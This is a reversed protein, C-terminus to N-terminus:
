RILTVKGTIKHKLYLGVTKYYIVWVYTSPSSIQGKYTGDWGITIDSTYFIEDGWRDFIYMEFDELERECIPKFVDNKSNYDPSFANPVWINVDEDKIVVMQSSSDICQWRNTVILTINYNGPDPFSFSVPSGSGGLGNVFWNYTVSDSSSSYCLVPTNIKPLSPHTNFAADPLPHVVITSSATSSGCGDYGIVSIITNSTPTVTISNNTSGGNWLYTEGGSATLTVSEGLCIEADTPSVTVLIQPLTTVVVTDTALCGVGNDSITLIYTTTVSPSVTVQALTDNASTSWLYHLGGSGYLILPTSPCITTDPGANAILQTFTVLITDSNMCGNNDTVKVSYTGTVTASFTPGTTNDQWLYANYAGPTLNLLSPTSCITTDGGLYPTPLPNITVTLVDSDIGQGCSNIGRVVITASGVFTASWDVTGTTGTGSIVGATAPLITWLYTTAGTGGTTAYNTNAADRCLSVTGTPLAPKAPLPTVTVNLTDSSASSGCNNVAIVSIKAVGNFLANWDVVASNTNGTITGATTPSISWTYSTANTSVACTYTANAADQCVPSPGVPTGPKSPLPNVTVFLTDSSLPGNGCPNIGRVFIRAIGNFSALWTVTGTTGTGSIAGATAPLIYWQYTTCNTGGLTTYVTPAVGQCLPTLGTPTAPKGPLPSVNVLLANSASGQGCANVGTVTITATGTFAAAWTITGVTGTGAISGATAPSISWVYTNCNTGGLTTDTSTTAGQCITLTGTPTAPIGPLPNVTIFLTDSAPGTGCSNIGHVIIKVIGTYTASWDVVSTTGTGTITGAITPIIYWQYTTANLTATTSINSNPANQCVATNPSPLTPKSPLPTVTVTFANSATLGTGCSNSDIVTIQVTGTFAADWDLTGSTGTGSITGATTPVIYWHYTLANTGGATTYVSNPADQCVPTPGAPTAPTGPLNTINVNLIDSAISTGCPNWGKVTIQVPGVYTNNWDVTGTLGTGTIVGAGAPSILWVYTSDYLGGATTYATNPANVCLTLPGTPIAPKTPLPKITIMLSDSVPGTGCLNIGYCIVRVTGIFGPAWTITTNTGIGSVSTAAAAPVVYWQYSTALINGSTAVITTPVGQCIPNPAVPTGPKGPLASVVVPFTDSPLSQGCDNIAKVVIKATGVYAAGWDITGTLGTGTFVGATAPTVTWLYTLANTGGTTTYSTNASNQCLPAPGSPTGPKGPLARINVYLTDSCPSLGCTNNGKVIIKAIGTYTNNWDVTLTTSTGSATVYAGAPIVIWQYSAAYAGGSTTYTSNAPNVCLLTDPGTPIGPKLALAVVTVTISDSAKEGAANVATIAIKVTGSFFASWSVTGNLGVGAIGGATAPTISWYYSVAGPTSGTSTYITSPTGQCLSVSGTPQGPKSPLQAFVFHAIFILGLTFFIKKM